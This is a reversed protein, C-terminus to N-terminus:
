VIITQLPFWVFEKKVCQDILESPTFEGDDSFRSHMHLDIM